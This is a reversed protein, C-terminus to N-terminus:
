MMERILNWFKELWQWSKQITAKIVIFENWIKMKWKVEKMILKECWNLSNELHENKKLFTSVKHMVKFDNMLTEYYKKLM